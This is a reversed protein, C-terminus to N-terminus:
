RKKRTKSLFFFKEPDKVGPRIEVGSAVDVGFAQSARIAGEVNRSTLGGALLVPGSLRHGGEEGM